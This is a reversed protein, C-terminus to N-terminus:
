ALRLGVIGTIGRPTERCKLAAAQTRKPAEGLLNYREVVNYVKQRSIDVGAKPLYVSVTLNQTCIIKQYLLCKKLM